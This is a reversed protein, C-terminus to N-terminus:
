PSEGFPSLGNVKWALAIRALTEEYRKGELSQDTEAYAPRFAPAHLASLPNIGLARFAAVEESDAARSLVQEIRNCWMRWDLPDVSCAIDAILDLQQMMMRIPYQRLGRQPTPGTLDGHKSLPVGPCDIPGPDDESPRMPFSELEWGAQELTMARAPATAIGGQEDIVPVQAVHTKGDVIWRLAVEAPREGQWRIRTAVDRACVAGKSDLVEFNATSIAPILLWGAQASDGQWMLYVLPLAVFQAERCSMAEGQQLNGGTAVELTWQIPLLNAIVQSSDDGTTQNWLMHEAMLVVGAELNGGAASAKKLFGPNTMNGSGFYLWPSICKNGDGRYNASFIFKAHMFAQSATRQPPRVKWGATAIAPAALAVAQCAQPNVYIDVSASDRLLLEERLGAVVKNLVSPLGADVISEYYASGIALYNRFVYKENKVKRQVHAWLSQGRNDIFRTTGEARKSALGAWQELNQRALQTETDSRGAPTADLISTDFFGRLWTLMDWAAALDACDRRAGDGLARSDIDVRWALDINEELTARTWNGTSVLLRLQWDNPNGLRRFGLVAVKAHLLVFPLDSRRAPFHSVGPVAATTVQPNGQDLMLGLRICGSAARASANETSFREMAIKLFAVDASYGCLWGFEGAYGEAAAFHQALSMRMVEPKAM